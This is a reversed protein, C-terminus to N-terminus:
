FSPKSFLTRLSSGEAVDAAPKILTNVSAVFVGVWDVPGRTTGNWVVESETWVPLALFNEISTIYNSRPERTPPLVGRQNTKPLHNRVM